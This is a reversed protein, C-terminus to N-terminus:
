WWLRGRCTAMLSSRLGPSSRLSRPRAPRSTVRERLDGEGGDRRGRSESLNGSLLGRSWGLSLDCGEERSWWLDRSRLRSRGRRADGDGERRSLYLSSIRSRDRPRSATSERRSERVRDCLSRLRPCGRPSPREKDGETFRVLLRLVSRAVASLFFDLRSWLGRRSRM